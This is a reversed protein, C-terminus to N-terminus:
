RIALTSTIVAPGGTKPVMFLWSQDPRLDSLAIIKQQESLFSLDVSSERKSEDSKIEIIQHSQNFRKILDATIGPVEQDHTEIVMVASALRPISHPEFLIGEFGECDSVIFANDELKDQMWSLDCVGRIEVREQCGNLMSANAIARRAWHDTDFAVVHANSLRTAIGVAYYGFKAGIDLVQKYEGALLTQWVVHLESEYVGLLYPALHEKFSEDPLQIGEFPGSLVRKGYHNAIMKGIEVHGSRAYFRQSHRRARTSFISLALSPMKQLVLDKIKKKM